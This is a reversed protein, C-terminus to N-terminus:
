KRMNSQRRRQMCQLMCQQQQCVLCSIVCLTMNEMRERGLFHLLTIMPEGGVRWMYWSKCQFIQLILRGELDCKWNIKRERRERSWKVGNEGNREVWKREMQTTTKM